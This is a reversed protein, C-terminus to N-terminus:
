GAEATTTTGRTGQEWVSDKGTHLVLSTGVIGIVPLSIIAAAVFPVDFNPISSQILFGLGQRSTIYDGFVAGIFALVVAIQLGAFIAGLAAPVKVNVFTHLRSANFVRLLDIMDPNASRFGAVSSVLVPFSCILVVM